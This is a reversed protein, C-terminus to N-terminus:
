SVRSTYAQLCGRMTGYIGGDRSNAKVSWRLCPATTRRLCTLCLAQTSRPTDLGQRTTVRIHELYTRWAGQTDESFNNTVRKALLIVQELALVSKTFERRFYHPISCWCRLCARQNQSACSGM